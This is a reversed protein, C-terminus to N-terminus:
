LRPRTQMAWMTAALLSGDVVPAEGSTARQYLAANIGAVLMAGSTCDGFAGFPM